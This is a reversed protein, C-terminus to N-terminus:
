LLFGRRRMFEVPHMANKQLNCRARLLQANDDTNTGGLALPMIHDLHYNDGLAEGCCACKGRQLKFLRAKLGPSLDGGVALKRARRKNQARIAAEPNKAAWAANRRSIKEKNQEYHRVQTDKVKDKNQAAWNTSIARRKEPNAQAWKSANAKIRDANAAYYAADHAKIKAKNAARYEAAHARKCVPCEKGYYETGCKKHIPM